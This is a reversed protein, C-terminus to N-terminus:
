SPSSRHRCAWRATCAERVGDPANRVIPALHDPFIGPYVPMNGLIERMARVFAIIAAQNTTLSYLNCM